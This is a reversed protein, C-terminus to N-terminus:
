HSELVKQALKELESRYAKMSAMRNNKIKDIARYLVVQNTLVQNLLDKIENIEDKSM